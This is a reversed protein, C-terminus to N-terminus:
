QRSVQRVAISLSPALHCLVHDGFKAVIVLKGTLYAKEPESSHRGETGKNSRKDEHNNNDEEEHLL